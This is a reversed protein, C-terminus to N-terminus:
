RQLDNLPALNDDHFLLRDSLRLLLKADCSVLSRLLLQDFCLCDLVLDFRELPDLAQCLFFKRGVLVGEIVRIVLLPDIQIASLVEEQSQDIPLTVWDSLEVKEVDRRFKLVLNLNWLRHLDLRNWDLPEIVGLSVLLKVCHDLRHLSAVCEDVM